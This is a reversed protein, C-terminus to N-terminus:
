NTRFFPFFLGKKERQSVYNSVFTTKILWDKSSSSFVLLHSKLHSRFCVIEGFYINLCAFLRCDCSHIAFINTEDLSLILM